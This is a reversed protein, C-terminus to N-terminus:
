KINVLSNMMKNLNYKNTKIKTINEIWDFFGTENCKSCGSGKCNECIYIGSDELKKIINYIYGIGNCTDCYSYTDWLTYGNAGYTVNSLGTGKCSICISNKRIGEPVKHIFFNRIKDTYKVQEITLHM